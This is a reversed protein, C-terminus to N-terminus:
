AGKSPPEQLLEALHKPLRIRQPLKEEELMLGVSDNKSDALELLRDTMGLIFLVTAYSGMVVTPDGLEIKHLTARSILAREAMMETSIRRRRRANKIDSGLKKLARKVPIPLALIAKSKM